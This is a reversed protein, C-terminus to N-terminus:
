KINLLIKLFTLGEKKGIIFAEQYAWSPNSFDKESKGLKDLEDDICQYIRKFLDQSLELQEKLLQREKESKNSLIKNYM